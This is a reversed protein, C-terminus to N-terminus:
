QKSESPQQQTKQQTQQQSDSGLDLNAMQTNLSASEFMKAAPSSRNTVINLRSRVRRKLNSPKKFKNRNIASFASKKASFASKKLNEVRQHKPM